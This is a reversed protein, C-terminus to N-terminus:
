LVPMPRPEVPPRRPPLDEAPVVEAVGAVLDVRVAMGVQKAAAFIRALEAQTFRAPRRGM